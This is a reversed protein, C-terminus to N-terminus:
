PVPGGAWAGAAGGEEGFQSDTGERSSRLRVRSGAGGLGCNGQGWEREWFETTQAGLRRNM